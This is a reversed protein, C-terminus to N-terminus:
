KSWKFILEKCYDVAAKAAQKKTLGENLGRAIHNMLIARFMNINGKNEEITKKIIKREAKSSKELVIKLYPKKVAVLYCVEYIFYFVERIAENYKNDREEGEPIYNFKEKSINSKVEKWLDRLFDELSYDVEGGMVQAPTFDWKM